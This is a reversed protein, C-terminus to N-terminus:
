PLEEKGYATAGCLKKSLYLILDDDNVCPQYPKLPSEKYWVGSGDPVYGRKIYMRQAAGYGEHLGVGLSVTDCLSSAMREAADMLLSGIGRRQFAMLVNFDSIEPIGNGAFPGTEAKPLLTVYGAFEQGRLAVFVLRAGERQQSLYASFQEPPKHWGQRLFGDAMLPGDAEVMFRILVDGDWYLVRGGEPM